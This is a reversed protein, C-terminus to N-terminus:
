QKSRLGWRDPQHSASDTPNDRWRLAKICFNATNDLYYLDQWWGQSYYYSQGPSSSSDVFVGPSSDDLDMKGLERFEQESSWQRQSEVRVPEDSIDEFPPQISPQSMLVEIYSSCDYAHGGASLNVYVYFDDKSGIFVPTDLDITHFGTYQINGSKISLEDLLEGGEFRDYIKVTYNVNDAATYFSVATIPKQSVSSFANFAENIDTKTKRWGHYDHYYIHDYALLEADQFSVAGMEPHRCCHKDYYSIWFYGQEGFIVGYSNKCLWAGNGQPAETVKEDDWGVIAVAHGPTGSDSPPQYSINYGGGGYGSMSMATGLAGHTRIANKITEINSLDDKLVYWEVHRPYYKHYSESDRPPPWYPDVDFSRVAGEGRTMYATAMRYDGGKGVEVGGGTPSDTDDNNHQNFGNWWDLHYEALDPYGHERAIFWNGTVLLNSEMVAMTGHAWCTGGSQKKVPTVYGDDRLDYSDARVQGTLAPVLAIVTFVFVVQKGM